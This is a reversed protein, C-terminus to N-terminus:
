LHLKPLNPLRSANRGSCASTPVLHGTDVLAVCVETVPPNDYEPLDNTCSLTGIRTTKLVEQQGSRATVAAEQVTGPKGESRQWDMGVDHFSRKVVDGGNTENSCDGGQLPSSRRHRQFGINGIASAFLKQMM